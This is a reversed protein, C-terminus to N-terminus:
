LEEPEPLVPTKTWFRQRIAGWVEHLERSRLIILSIVGAVLGAIGAIFGHTFVGWFTDLSFVGDFLALVGYSVSGTVLACLLANYLTTYLRAPLSAGFDRRFMVWFATTSLLVGVSYAFALSIVAAGDLGGVRLASAASQAFLESAQFFASSAYAIAIVVVATLTKVVVPKYTKGAAYYGRIFLLELGQAALSVVFLALVAATLRTDAWDFAGSGLVVRVIHARLVVFLATIPLSWFIVHKAATAIQEVFSESDGRTFYQALTPFAAVSYSVGIISLPVGQMNFAFTFVTISGEAVQSAIAVLVLIVLQNVALAFTRPLSVLVVRKFLAWEPRLRLRPILGAKLLTPMQIGMHLLAGLVVGYALGAIGFLPYLVIVGLIIGVNYLVPSIAYIFFRHLTQTVAAFINSVGLLIPSLLMIRTLLIVDVIAGQGFGPFLTPLIKPALVFLVISVVIILVFFGSLVTDLLARTRERDDFSELLFPILVFLSFLSAISVFVVDPIRFAAYYVDLTAGAGFSHALLRDRVLALLHSLLAFVALIYAAEHLGRVQKNIM